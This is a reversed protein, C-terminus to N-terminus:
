WSGCLLNGIFHSRSWPMRDPLQHRRSGRHRGIVPDVTLLPVVLPDHLRERGSLGGSTM